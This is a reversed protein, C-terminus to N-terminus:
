LYIDKRGGVKLVLFEVLDKKQSSLGLLLRYSGVRLKHTAPELERLRRVVSFIDEHTKLFVLKDTIRQQMQNSLKLFM